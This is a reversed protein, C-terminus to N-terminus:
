SLKNRYAAAMIEVTHLIPISCNIKEMHNKLQSLCGINGSAIMDANSAALIAAKKAGLEAAIQPHDLNYTGASGCCLNADPLEVLNIGPISRLLKRPADRVGQAHALHCADHYAIRLTRGPDPPQPLNMSELFVSIDMVKSAFKRAPDLERTDALMMPYESLGSGCGAANTVVADIDEPFAKLNRRAQKRARSGDGIHWALAGCCGQKEPIIVEIGNSTLIDITALNIAPALVQQACGSLLAIRGTQKCGTVPYLSSLKEQAPLKGPLLDLPERLSGPLIRRLPRVLTAIRALYRFREPRTLTASLLKRKLGVFFGRQRRPEAYDRFPSILEGYEVGSPCTTECALCGLCRDIHPLARSLALKGELVEKMLVIRGRPSDMEQGLERYTPCDPLCFGCHVCTEVAKSMAKGHPGLNEAAIGHKM